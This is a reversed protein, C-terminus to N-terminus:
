YGRMNTSAFMSRQRDEVRQEAKTKSNQEAPDGDNCTNPCKLPSLPLSQAVCACTWIVVYKSVSFKSYPLIGQDKCTNQHHKDYSSDHSIEKCFQPFTAPVTVFASCFFQTENWNRHTKKMLFVVNWHWSRCKWISWMNLFQTRLLILTM